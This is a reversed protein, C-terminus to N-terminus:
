RLLVGNILVQDFGQQSPHFGPLDGYRFNLPREHPIGGFHTVEHVAQILAKRHTVDNGPAVRRHLQFVARQGLALLHQDIALLTDRRQGGGDGPLLHNVLIVLLHTDADGKVGDFFAELDAVRGDLLVFGPKGVDRGDNITLELRM